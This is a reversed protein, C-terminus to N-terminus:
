VVFKTSVSCLFFLFYSNMRETQVYENLKEEIGPMPFEFYTLPSGQHSLPLSGGQWHLLCLNLGQDLFIRCATSCSLGHVM